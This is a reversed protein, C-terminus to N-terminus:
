IMKGIVVLRKLNLGPPVCTMLSIYRNLEDPPKIVSFDKPDVVRAGEVEYIFQGAKTELIIQDGKKLKNLSTFPVNKKKSFQPLISHGSIFINGREGPLASGPLHVLGLNLDNSDVFVTESTINLSSVSIKFQDFPAPSSRSLTSIFAPFGGFGERISIGLVQQKDSVPAFLPKTNQLLALEWLKYNLVPLFVQSLIFLGGLLFLFSLLKGGHIM